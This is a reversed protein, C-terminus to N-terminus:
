RELAWRRSTGDQGGQTDQGVYERAVPPTVWRGGRWFYPTTISGERVADQSENLLLVERLDTPGLGSRKRAADYMPRYTTKFYTHESAATGVTDLVVTYEPSHSPSRPGMEAAGPAPLHMPLLNHIAMPPADYKECRIQGDRNVLVRLRLPKESGESDGVLDQLQLVLNDLSSPNELEEVASQWEFYRAGKLLRTHHYDLMYFPSANRHHWGTLDYKDTKALGTDYRPTAVLSFSEM